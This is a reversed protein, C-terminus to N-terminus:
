YGNSDMKAYIELFSNLTGFRTGDKIKVLYEKWEEIIKNGGKKLKM